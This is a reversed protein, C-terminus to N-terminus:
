SALKSAQAFAKTALTAYGKQASFDALIGLMEPVTSCMELKATIENGKDTTGLQTKFLELGKVPDAENILDFKVNAANSLVKEFQNLAVGVDSGHRKRTDELKFTAEAKGNRSAVLGKVIFARQGTQGNIIQIGFELSDEKKIAVNIIPGWEDLTAKTVHDSLGYRELADLVEVNYIPNYRRMTGALAGNVVPWVYLHPTGDVRFAEKYIKEIAEGDPSTILKTAEGLSVTRKSLHRVFFNNSKSMTWSGVEKGDLDHLVYIGSGIHKIDLTAQVYTVSQDLVKDVFKTYVESGSGVSIMKIDEEALPQRVEDTVPEESESAAPVVDAPEEVEEPKEVIEDPQMAKHIASVLVAKSLGEPEIGNEEALSVLEMKPLKSLEKINM